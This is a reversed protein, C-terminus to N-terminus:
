FSEHEGGLDARSPLNWALQYRRRLPPDALDLELEYGLTGGRRVQRESYAGSRVLVNSLEKDPPSGGRSVLPGKPTALLNVPLFVRMVLRRTPYIVNRWAWDYARPGAKSELTVNAVEERFGYKFSPIFGEVVYEATEGIGLAPSLAVDQAFNSGTRRRPQRLTVYGTDTRTPEEGLRLQPMRESDFPLERDSERTFDVVLLELGERQNATVRRRGRYHCDWTGPDVANRQFVWESEAYEYIRDFDAEQLVVPNRGAPVWGEIAEEDRLASISSGVAQVLDTESRFYRVTTQREVERRFATLKGRGDDTQESKSVPLEDLDSRLLGILPKGRRVCERFERHTWSIGSEESISGYRGALVFVCFDAADISEEITPWQSRGTSPFFEMGLPVCQHDLLVQVLRQREDQLDLFTSSVFATFLRKM